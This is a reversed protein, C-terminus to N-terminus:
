WLYYTATGDQHVTITVHNDKPVNVVYDIWLSPSSIKISHPDSYYVGSFRYFEGEGSPLYDFGKYEDDVYLSIRIEANTENEVNISLKQLSGSPPSILFAIVIAAVIVAVIIILVKSAGAMEEKKEKQRMEPTVEGKRALLLKEWDRDENYFYMSNGCKPCKWKAESSIEGCTKCFMEIRETTM